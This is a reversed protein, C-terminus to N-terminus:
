SVPLRCAPAPQSLPNSPPSPSVAYGWRECDPAAWPSVLEVLEPTYFDQWPRRYFSVNVRPLEADIGLGHLDEVLSEVRLVEADGAHALWQSLQWGYFPELKGEVAQRAFGGFHPSGMGISAQWRAFHLYLSVLRAYPDRVVVFRRM